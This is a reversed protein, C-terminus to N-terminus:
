PTGQPEAPWRPYPRAREFAHAVRLLLRAAGREALLQMGVPLGDDGPGAPVSIAPHGTMNFPYTFAASHVPSALRHGDIADPMPGGAAFATAPCTPTVLLD